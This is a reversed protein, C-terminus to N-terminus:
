GYRHMRIPRIGAPSNRNIMFSIMQIGAWFWTVFLLVPILLRCFKDRHMYKGRMIGDVDFVGIKVFKIDREQILKRADDATKVDQAQM